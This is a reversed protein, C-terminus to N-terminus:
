TGARAVRTAKRARPPPAPMRVEFHGAENLTHALGLRKLLRAADFPARVKIDNDFYVHVDLPGGQARGRKRWGDIRSAWMDLAEDDYGSAYLAKDGHLRLYMFDCTIEMMFPWKGATDAVVLAVGHRKLMDVFEACEFSPHRIEVAHSLPRRVDAELHEREAMFGDRQGALRFAAQTDHPLQTLFADFLAADFRFSPPFQWLVPGLKQGLALVGSAFFNAIPQEVDRLRQVHTVYKPAKVSFLFDDPTDAFWHMFSQPKQLAYFTGNIEISPLARSAFMLEHKQVLGKPYFVGRWGEYRWGSIGIRVSGLQQQTHRNQSM